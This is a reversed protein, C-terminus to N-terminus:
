RGRLGALFEQVAKKSDEPPAWPAFETDQRRFPGRTVEYFVVFPSEVIQAHFVPRQIRYLFAAGRSRSLPQRRTVNGRSDYFIVTARGEILHFSETKGPHRHPRIYVGRALVILMEHIPEKAGKHLCIRARKLPSAKAKQKLMRIAETNVIGPNGGLVFVNQGQQKLRM